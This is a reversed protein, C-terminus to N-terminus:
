HALFDALVRASEEPSWEGQQTHRLRGNRDFVLTFPLAGITNGQAQMYRAVDEEGALIPYNIDRSAIFSAVAERDDLAVGVFQLGQAGYRKQLEVFSPIEKLCPPCWTAWFNVVLVKGRWESLAHAQGQLDSFTVTLPDSAAATPPPAPPSLHRFALGSGVAVLAVAGILVNRNM